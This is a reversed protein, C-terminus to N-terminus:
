QPLSPARQRKKCRISEENEEEEEKTYYTVFINCFIHLLYLSIKLPVRPDFANDPGFIFSVNDM